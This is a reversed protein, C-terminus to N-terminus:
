TDQHWATTALPAWEQNIEQSQERVLRVAKRIRRQRKLAAVHRNLSNLGELVVAKKSALGLIKKLDIIKQDEEKTIQITTAVKVFMLRVITIVM